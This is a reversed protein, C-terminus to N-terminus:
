ERHFGLTGFSVVSEDDINWQQYSLLRARAEPYVQAFTYLTSSGCWKLDADRAAVDSWFAGADGGELMAIRARDIEEVEAMKGQFAQAAFDDDYRKGMHAMDVSM